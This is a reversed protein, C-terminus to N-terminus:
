IVTNKLRAELDDLRRRLSGDLQKGSCTVRVGGLVHPDVTNQLIIRKGFMSELTRTLAAMQQETMPRATVARAREINLHEDYLRFYVDAAKGLLYFLSRDGLLKIFNLVLQSLGGFAADAASHKESRSLAPTDFLKICQPQRQIVGIVVELDARVSEIEGLELAAEFLAKGYATHDTM